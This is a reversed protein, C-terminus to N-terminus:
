TNSANEILKYKKGLSLYTKQFIPLYEKIHEFIIKAEKEKYAHSTNNRDDLMQLWVEQDNILGYQYSKSLVDRPTTSEVKEHFLIKKLAKWFLEITLKFRQITADRLFDIQDLGPHEIVEQLRDIANGLSNFHDKWTIEKM